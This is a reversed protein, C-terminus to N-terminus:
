YPGAIDNILTAVPGSRQAANVAAGNGSISSTSRTGGAGSISLTGSNNTAVYIRVVVRRAKDLSVSPSAGVIIQGIYDSQRGSTGRPIPVNIGYVGTTTNGANDTILTATTNTPYSTTVSAANLNPVTSDLTRLSTAASVMQLSVPSTAPYWNANDVPVNVLGNEAYTTSVSWYSRISEMELRALNRAEELTKEQRQLLASATLPFVISTLSVGAVLVAVLSEVLTLGKRNRLIKM